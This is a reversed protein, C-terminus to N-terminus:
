HSLRLAAVVVSGIVFFTLFFVVVYDDVGYKSTWARIPQQIKKDLFRIIKNGVRDDKVLYDSAGVRMANVATEVDGHTTMIIVETEPFREKIERLVEQGNGLGEKNLSADLVVLQIGSHMMRLCNHGSFYLSIDIKGDFKSKLYTRLSSATRRDRDVIFINLKEKLM